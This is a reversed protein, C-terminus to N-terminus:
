IFRVNAVWSDAIKRKSLPQAALLVMFSSRGWQAKALDLRATSASHRNLM